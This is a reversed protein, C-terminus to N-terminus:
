SRRRWVRVSGLREALEVDLPPLSPDAARRQRHDFRYADTAKLNVSGTALDVLYTVGFTSSAHLVGDHIEASAWGTVRETPFFVYLRYAAGAVAPPDDPGPSIGRARGDAPLDEAHFVAAFNPYGRKRARLRNSFGLIVLHPPAEVLLHIHGYNWFVLREELRDRATAELVVFSSPAYDDRTALALLRRGSWQLPLVLEPMPAQLQRFTEGEHRARKAPLPFPSRGLVRYSAALSGDRELVLVKCQDAGSAKSTVLLFQDRGTVSAARHAVVHGDLRLAFRTSGGPTRGVVIGGAVALREAVGEACGPALLLVLLAARTM